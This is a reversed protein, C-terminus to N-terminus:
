SARSLEAMARMHADNRAKLPELARRIEDIQPSEAIAPVTCLIDLLGVIRAIMASGDLAIATVESVASGYLPHNRREAVHRSLISPYEDAM